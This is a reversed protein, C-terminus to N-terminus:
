VMEALHALTMDRSIGNDPRGRSWAFGSSTTALAKFGMSQLMRASGVDWPNPIVFCGSEHLRQFTRRKDAVSTGNRNVSVEM